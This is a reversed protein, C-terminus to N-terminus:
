YSVPMTSTSTLTIPGILYLEPCWQYSVTVTVYNQVTVEGAKPNSTDMYTPMNIPTAKAPPSWSASITLKKTDLAATKPLLYTQVDASSIVQPMGTQKAIGDKQYQGGHTSAYRCGERALHAVEQYRFIGLGGIIMAFIFFLTTAAVVAFEVTSAGRRQRSRHDSRM